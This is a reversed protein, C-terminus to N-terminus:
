ARPAPRGLDSTEASARGIPTRGAVLLSPITLGAILASAAVGSWLLLNDSREPLGLLVRRSIDVMSNINWHLFMALLLSGTRLYVAGIVVSM